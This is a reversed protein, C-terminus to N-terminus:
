LSIIVTSTSHTSFEDLSSLSVESELSTEEASKLKDEFLLLSSSVADFVALPFAGALVVFVAEPLADLALVM